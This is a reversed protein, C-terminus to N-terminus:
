RRRTNIPWAIPMKIAAFRKTAPMRIESPIPLDSIPRGRQKAADFWTDFLVLFIFQTWKFYGPDTTALERDWDYSFGLMKLQRRFNAINQETSQRPPTNTRIAHKKPRCVSLQRIGDPADRVQRAHAPLPQRHRDGHLRRSAGRAPRRRQSLPVHRARVNKGRGIRAPPAAFTREADWYRQWKPEVVAPNYRPM